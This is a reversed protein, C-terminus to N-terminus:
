IDNGEPLMLLDRVGTNINCNTGIHITFVYYNFSGVYLIQKKKKTIIFLILFPLLRDFFLHQDGHM